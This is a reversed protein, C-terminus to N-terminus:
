KTKELYSQVINNASYEAGDNLVEIIYGCLAIVDMSTPDIGSEMFASFFSRRYVEYNINRLVAEEIANGNSNVVENQESENHLYPLCFIEFETPPALTLYYKYCMYFIHLTYLYVPVDEDVIRTSLDLAHLAIRPTYWPFKAAQESIRTIITVVEPDIGTILAFDLQRPPYDRRRLKIYGGLKPEPLFVSNLIQTASYRSSEPLICM